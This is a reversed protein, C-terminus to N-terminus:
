ALSHALAQQGLKENEIPRNKVFYNHLHQTLDDTFHRWSITIRIWQLAMPKDVETWLSLDTDAM